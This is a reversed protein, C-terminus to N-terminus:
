YADMFLIMMILFSIMKVNRRINPPITQPCVCELVQAPSPAPLMSVIPPEQPDPVKVFLLLVPGAYV